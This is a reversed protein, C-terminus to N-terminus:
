FSPPSGLSPPSNGESPGTVPTFKGNAHRNNRLATRYVGNQINIYSSTRGIHWNSRPMSFFPSELATEIKKILEPYEYVQKGQPLSEIRKIEKNMEKNFAELAAQRVIGLATQKSKTKDIQFFRDLNPNEHINLLPCNNVLTFIPYYNKYNFDKREKMVEVAFTLKHILEQKLVKANQPDLDPGIKYALFTSELKNKFDEVGIQRLENKWDYEFYETPDKEKKDSVPM